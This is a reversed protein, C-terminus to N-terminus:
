RMPTPVMLWGPIEFGQPGCNDELCVCVQGGHGCQGSWLAALLVLLSVSSFGTPSRETSLMLTELHLHYGWSVRLMTRISGMSESFMLM